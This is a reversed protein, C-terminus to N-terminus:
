EEKLRSVLQQALEVQEAPSLRAIAALLAELTPM